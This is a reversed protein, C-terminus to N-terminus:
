NWYTSSSSVIKIEGNEKESYIKTTAWWQASRDDERIDYSHSATVNLEPYKKVLEEFAKIIENESINLSTTLATGSLKWEFEQNSFENLFYNKVGEFIISSDEDETYILIDM